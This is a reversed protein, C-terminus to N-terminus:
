FLILLLVAILSFVSLYSTLHSSLLGNGKKNSPVGFRARIQSSSLSSNPISGNDHYQRLESASHQDDSMTKESSMESLKGGM